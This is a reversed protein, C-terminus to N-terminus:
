RRALRLLADAELDDEVQDLVEEAIEALLRETAERTTDEVVGGDKPAKTRYRAELKLKSINVTGERLVHAGIAGQLRYHFEGYATMSGKELDYDKSSFIDLIKQRIVVNFDTHLTLPARNDVLHVREDEFFEGFQMQVQQDLYQSFEQSAKKRIEGLGGNSGSLALLLQLNNGTLPTPAEIKIEVPTVALRIVPDESGMGMWGEPAKAAAVPSFMLLAYLVSFTLRRASNRFSSLNQSNRFM